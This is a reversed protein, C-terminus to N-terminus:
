LHGKVFTRLQSLSSAGTQQAIVGGDQFLALTPIGRIGLKATIEPSDDVNVKAVTLQGDFEDAIEELLPAVTKCPGCWPAWFDVLVAQDSKLVAEDFSADTVHIIDTM